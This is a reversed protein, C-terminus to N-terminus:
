GVVKFYCNKRILTEGGIDIRSAGKRTIPSWFTGPHWVDVCYRIGRPGIMHFTRVQGNGTLVNNFHSKIAPPNAFRLSATFAKGYQVIMANRAVNAADGYSFGGYIGNQYNQCGVTIGFVVGALALLALCWGIAAKGLDILLNGDFSTNM